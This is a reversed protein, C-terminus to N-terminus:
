HQRLEGRAFRAGIPRTNAGSYPSNTMIRSILENLATECNAMTENGIRLGHRYLKLQSAMSINPKSELYHSKGNDSLM